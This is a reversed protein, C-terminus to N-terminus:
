GRSRFYEEHFAIIFGGLCADVHMGIGHRLAIQGMEPVPDCVGHPWGCASAVIAVTNPNIAKELKELDVKLTVPDLDVPVLKVGFYECGKDFSPHGSKPMV